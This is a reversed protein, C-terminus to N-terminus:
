KKRLSNYIMQFIGNSKVKPDLALLESIGFLISVIVTKNDVIFYIITELTKM